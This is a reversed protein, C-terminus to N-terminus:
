RMLLAWKNYNFVCNLHEAQKEQGVIHENILIAM